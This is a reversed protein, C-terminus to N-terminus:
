SVCLRWSFLRLNNRVNSRSLPKTVNKSLRTSKSMPYCAILLHTHTHHSVFIWLKECLGFFHAYILIKRMIGFSLVNVLFLCSVLRFFYEFRLSFHMSGSCEVMLYYCKKLIYFSFSACLLFLSLKWQSFIDAHTINAYCVSLNFDVNLWVAKM